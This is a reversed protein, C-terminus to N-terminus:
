LDEEVEAYTFDYESHSSDLFQIREPRVRIMHGDSLECIGFMGALQGGNHGGTLMSPAIVQYSQEWTHFLADLHEGVEGHASRYVICPRLKPTLTMTMGAM